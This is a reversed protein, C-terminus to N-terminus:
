LFWLNLSPLDFWPRIPVINFLLGTFEILLLAGQFTWVDGLRERLGQVRSVCSCSEFWEVLSDLVSQTRDTLHELTEHIRPSSISKGPIEIKKSASRAIKSAAEHAKSPTRKLSRIVPAPSPPASSSSAESCM